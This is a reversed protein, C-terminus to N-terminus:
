PSAQPATLDLAAHTHDPSEAYRAPALWEVCHRNAAALHQRTSFTHDAEVLEQRSVNSRATAARWRADSRCLEVFERATLDKGSLLLLVRGRFREMSHRMNDLFALPAQDDAHQRAGLARRAARAFQAISGTVDVQLCLLKSWFSWQLFRQGYYARLQTAAQTASSRVWPNLLILHSVRPDSRGYMLAASAGDCLGYLAVSTVQPARAQLADIAARIDAHLREFGQYQGSSDGMGRGDFRLVTYGAESLARATLVFQRHSGVRYQPGGVVIVVALRAPIGAAAHLVGILTEGECAFVLPTEPGSSM